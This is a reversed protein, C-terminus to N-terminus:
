TPLNRRRLVFDGAPGVGARMLVSWTGVVSDGRVIGRFEVPFDSGPGLDLWLSDGRRGGAVAPIGATIGPQFGVSDFDVDFTGVVLPREYAGAVDLGLGNLTLAIIGSTHRWALSDTSGTRRVRLEWSGALHQVAPAALGARWAATDPRCGVLVVIALLAGGRTM